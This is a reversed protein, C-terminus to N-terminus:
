DFTVLQGLVLYEKPPGDSLCIISYIIVDTQGANATPPTGGQWKVTQTVGDIKLENPFYGTAGQNVIATVSTAQGVELDPNDLDITWDSTISGTSGASYYFIQGDEDATRADTHGSSITVNDQITVVEASRIIVNARALIGDFSATIGTLNSGDGYFATASVNGATINGTVTLSSLTGVSTINPQANATVTAATTASTATVGTLGAGNGYFASAYVNGGFGAGGVVRLAGTTTSTAINTAQANNIYVM